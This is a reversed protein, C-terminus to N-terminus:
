RVGENEASFNHVIRDAAAPFFHAPPETVKYSNIKLKSYYSMASFSQLFMGFAAPGFFFVGFFLVMAWLPSFVVLIILTLLLKLITKGTFHFRNMHYSVTFKVNKAYPMLRRHLALIFKSYSMDENDVIELKRGDDFHMRCSYINGSEKQNRHDLNVEKVRRLPFGETIRNNEIVLLRNDKLELTKTSLQAQDSYQYYIADM